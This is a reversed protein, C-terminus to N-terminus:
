HGTVNDIVTQNIRPQARVRLADAFTAALDGAISRAVVERVQNYGAPDTKPDAEVVEAPVAVIFGDGAEVM